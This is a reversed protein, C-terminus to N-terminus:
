KNSSGKMGTLGYEKQAIRTIEGVSYKESLLLDWLARVVQFDKRTL